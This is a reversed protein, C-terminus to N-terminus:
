RTLPRLDEARITWTTHECVVGLVAELGGDATAARLGGFCGPCRSESFLTVVRTGDVQVDSLIADHVFTLEHGSEDAITVKVLPVSVERLMECRDLAVVADGLCGTAEALDATRIEWAEGRCIREQLLAESRDETVVWVYSACRRADLDLGLLLSMSEGDELRRDSGEHHIILDTGSENAVAVSITRAPDVFPQILMVAGWLLGLVAVAILAGFCWARRWDTRDAAMVRMGQPRSVDGAVSAM